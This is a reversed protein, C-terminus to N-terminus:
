LSQHRQTKEPELPADNTKDLFTQVLTESSMAVIKPTLLKPHNKLRKKGEPHLVVLLIKLYVKTMTAFLGNSLDSVTFGLQRTGRYIMTVGYVGKIQDFDPRKMLERTLDPFASLALQIMRKALQIPSQADVAVEFLFTNNFHLEAIRDGKKIVNGDNLKISKGHYPRVKFSIFQNSGEIPKISYVTKFLKEWAMWALILGRKKRDLKSLNM